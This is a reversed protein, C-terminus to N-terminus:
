AAPTAEPIPTLVDMDVTLREMQEGPGVPIIDGQIPGLIPFSFGQGSGDGNSSEITVAVNGAADAEWAGLMTTGDVFVAVVTGGLGFALYIDDIQATLHWTGIIAPQATTAADAEPRSWSGIAGVLVIAVALTVISLSVLKMGEAERSQPIRKKRGGLDARQDVDEVIIL